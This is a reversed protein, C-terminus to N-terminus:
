PEVRQRRPIWTSQDQLAGRPILHHRPIAHPLDLRALLDPVDVETREFRQGLAPNSTNPPIGQTETPLAGGGGRRGRESRRSRSRHHRTSRSYVARPSLHHNSTPFTALSVCLAPLPLRSEQRPRVHRAFCAQWVALCTALYFCRVPSCISEPMSQLTRQAAALIVEPGRRLLARSGNQEDEAGMTMLESRRRHINDLCPDDSPIRHFLLTRELYRLPRLYWRRLEALARM